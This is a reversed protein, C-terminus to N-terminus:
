VRLYRRLGLASGVLGAISGFLMFAVAWRLFFGEPLNLQVINIDIGGLAQQGVWVALVALGAGVLGELMGELLFPIRIFWNSAGVLRMVAVEERRAYIALRITNAILVVAAGGQVVALGVALRNLVSNLDSLREIVEGPSVIKRVAPQGDLRFEIDRYREIESLKIRLSAPVISQDSIDLLSPSDAFITQFEEWAEAKDVYRVSEVEQWDLIQNQLAQHDANSIGDEIDKLFVVVHEGEQWLLTNVRVIENLMLASFALALSIFIALIAGAVVLVNRRMNQFADRLLYTIRSM